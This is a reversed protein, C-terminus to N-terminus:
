GIHVVARGSPRWRAPAPPAAAPAPPPATTPLAPAEHRGRTDSSPVAARAPAAPSTTPTTDYTMPHAAVFVAASITGVGVALWIRKAWSPEARRSSTIEDAAVPVVPDAPGEPARPGDGARARAAAENLLEAAYVARRLPEAPTDPIENLLKMRAEAGRPDGSNLHPHVKRALRRFVREIEATSARPDIELVEYFTM